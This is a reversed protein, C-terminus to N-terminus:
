FVLEPWYQSDISAATGDSATVNVLGRNAICGLDLTGNFRERAIGVAAQHHHRVGEGEGVSLQNDGERLSAAQRRGIWETDEGSIRVWLSGTSRGVCIQGIPITVFRSSLGDACNNM